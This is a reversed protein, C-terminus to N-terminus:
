GKYHNDEGAEYDRCEFCSTTITNPNVTCNLPSYMIHYKCSLCLSEPLIVKEAKYFGLIPDDNKVNFNPVTYAWTNSKETFITLHDEAGNVIKLEYRNVNSDDNSVFYTLQYYKNNDILLSYILMNSYCSDRVYDSTIWIIKKKKAKICLLLFPTFLEVVFNYNINKHNFAFHFHSHNNIILNLQRQRRFCARITDQEHNQVTTYRIITM